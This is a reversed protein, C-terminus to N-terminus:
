FRKGQGAPQETGSEPTQRGVPVLPGIECVAGSKLVRITQMSACINDPPTPGYAFGNFILEPCASRLTTSWVNGDKMFFLITRDNPTKTHDIDISRICVPAAAGEARASVSTTLLLLICLFADRMTNSRVSRIMRNTMWQDNNPHQTQRIPL